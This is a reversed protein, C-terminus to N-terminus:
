RVVFADHNTVRPWDMRLMDSDVANDVDSALPVVYLGCGHMWVGQLTQSMILTVM